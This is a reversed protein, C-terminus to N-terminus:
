YKEMFGEKNKKFRHMHDKSCQYVEEDILKLAVSFGKESFCRPCIEQYKLGSTM